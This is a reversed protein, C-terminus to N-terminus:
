RRKPKRFILNSNEWEAGTIHTHTHTLHVLWILHIHWHKGYVVQKRQFWSWYLTSLFVVMMDQIAIFRLRFKRKIATRVIKLLQRFVQWVFNVLPARRVCVFLTIEM